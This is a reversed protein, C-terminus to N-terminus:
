RRKEALIINRAATCCSNLRSEGREEREARMAYGSDSDRERMRNVSADCIMRLFVALMLATASHLRHRCESYSIVHHAHHMTPLIRNHFPANPLPPM